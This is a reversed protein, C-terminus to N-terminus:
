HVAHVHVHWRWQPRRHWAGRGGGPHAHARRPRCGHRQRACRNRALRRRCPEGHRRGGGAGREDFSGGGHHVRHGHEVAAIRRNGPLHLQGHGHLGCEARLQLQREPEADGNWARRQDGAHHHAPRRGSGHRQRARRHQGAAGQTTATDNPATPARNPGTLLRVDDITISSGAGGFSLLDFFLQVATGATVGTSIWPSSARVMRPRRATRRCRARRTSRATRSCTSRSQRHVVALQARSRSIRCRMWCRWKSPTPRFASATPRLRYRRAAHLAARARRRAAPLGAVCGVHLVREGHAGVRGGDGGRQGALGLRLRAAAPTLRLRRQHHGRHAHRYQHQRPPRAGGPLTEEGVNADAVDETSITRRQGEPLMVSMLQGDIFLDELGLAHGLEHALVTLLDYRGEAASGALARGSADFEESSLPTDDIFWGRGAADTDITILMGGSELTEALALTNSSLDAITYGVAALRAQAEANLGANLWLSSAALVLDEVSTPNAAIALKGAGNSGALQTRRITGDDVVIPVRRTVTGGDDDTVTVRVNYSGDAAYNHNLTANRATVGNLVSEPSSDGWDVTVTFVETPGIAADLWSLNLTAAGQAGGLFTTQGIVPAKNLVTSERVFTGHDFTVSITYQDHGVPSARDDAYRHTAGFYSRATTGIVFTQPPSGDGWNVIMNGSQPSLLRNSNVALSILDGEFNSSPATVILMSTGTNEPVPPDAPILQPIAILRTMFESQGGDDDRAWIRITHSQPGALSQAYNHSLSQIWNGPTGDGHQEVPTGDGWDVFLEMVDLASRDTVGVGLSVLGQDVLVESTALTPVTNRVVISFRETVTGDEDGDDLTITIPYIDRTTATPDDDEYTHVESFFRWRNAETGQRTTTTGDGWDITLTFDEVDGVALDDWVGAIELTDGEDIVHTSVDINKFEPPSNKIVANALVAGIDVIVSVPYSTAGEAQPDDAYVHTYTDSRTADTGIDVVAQVTGDGWDIIM